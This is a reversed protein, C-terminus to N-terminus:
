ASQGSFGLSRDIDAKGVSPNCMSVVTGVLNIHIRPMLSQDEHKCLVDSGSLKRKTGHNIKLFYIKALVFVM